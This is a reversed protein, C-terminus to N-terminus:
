AAAATTGGYESGDHFHVTGEAEDDADHAPAGGEEECASGESNKRAGYWSESVLDPIYASVLEPVGDSDSDLLGPPLPEDDSQLEVACTKKPAM